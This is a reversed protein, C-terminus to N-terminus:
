PQILLGGNRLRNDLLVDINKEIKPALPNGSTDTQPTYALLSLKDQSMVFLRNMLPHHLSSNIVNYGAQWVARFFFNQNGTQNSTEPYALMATSNNTTNNTNTISMIPYYYMAQRGRIKGDLLNIISNSMDLIPVEIPIIKYKDNLKENYTAVGFIYGSRPNNQFDFGILSTGPMINLAYPALQISTDDAMLTLDQNTEISIRKQENWRFGRLHFGQYDSTDRISLTLWLLENTLETKETNGDTVKSPITSAIQIPYFFPGFSSVDCIPNNSATSLQPEQIFFAYEPPDSGNDPAGIGGMLKQPSAPQGNIQKKPLVAWQLHIPHLQQCIVSSEEQVYPKNAFTKQINIKRAHADVDVIWLYKEPIYAIIPITSGDVTYSSFEPEFSHSVIADFDPPLYNMASINLRVIDRSVLDGLLLVQRDPDDPPPMPDLTSFLIYRGSPSVLPLRMNDKNPFRNPSFRLDELQTLDSSSFILATEMGPGSAMLLRHVTNQSAGVINETKKDMALFYVDGDPTISSLTCKIQKGDFSSNECKVIRHKDLTSIYIDVDLGNVSSPLEVVVGEGITFPGQSASGKEGWIKLPALADPISFEKGTDPLSTRDQGGKDRIGGDSTPTDEELKSRVILSCGFFLTSLVILTVLKKTM